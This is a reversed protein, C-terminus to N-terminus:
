HPSHTPPAGPSAAGSGMRARSSSWQGDEGQQLEVAWDVDNVVSLRALRRLESWDPPLSAYGVVELCTLASLSALPPPHVWGEFGEVDPYERGYEEEEEEETGWHAHIALAIGTLQPLAHLM